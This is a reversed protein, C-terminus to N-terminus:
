VYPINKGDLNKITLFCTSRRSVYEGNEDVVYMILSLDYKDKLILKDETPHFEVCQNTVWRYIENHKNKYKTVKVFEGNLFEYEGAGDTVYKVGYKNIKM